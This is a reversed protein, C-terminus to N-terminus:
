GVVGPGLLGSLVRGLVESYRDAPDATPTASAASLLEGLRPYEGSTVAHQLYATNRQVAPSDALEAQVFVATVATLLAFSDLKAAISAPSPELVELVHQLLALGHPGLPQRKLVLDALWRHRRMIARAQLGLDILDALWNGTPAALVYEAGTLDIMLDLLDERTDLYRYLSAAGTGLDAAVRRMSVAGIGDGDAIAIAAVTIEARSRRAPRGADASEPRLWISPRPPRAMM